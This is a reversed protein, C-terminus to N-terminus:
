FSQPVAKVFADRMVGRAAELNGQAQMKQILYVAENDFLGANEELQKVGGTPDTFERALESGAAEISQNSIRAYSKTHVILTETLDGPLGAHTYEAALDGATSESIHGAAAARKAIQVLGDLTVGSARGSGQLSAARRDYNLMQSGQWIIVGLVMVIGAVGALFMKAM